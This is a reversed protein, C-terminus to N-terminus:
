GFPGGGPTSLRARRRAARRMRLALLLGSIGFLVGTVLLWRELYPETTMGTIGDYNGPLRFILSFWVVLLLGSLAAPVRLHNLGAVAPGPDRRHRVASALSRDALAYLPFLVFDHGITAGAVWMAVGVADAALLRVAAYAALGFSILLALLHLPGAGYWRRARSV